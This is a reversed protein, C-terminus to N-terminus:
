AAPDRPPEEKVYREGLGRTAPRQEPQRSPHLEAAVVYHSVLSIFEAWQADLLADLHVQLDAPVTRDPRAM